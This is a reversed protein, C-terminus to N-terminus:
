SNRPSTGSDVITRTIREIKQHLDVSGGLDLKDGYTKPLMKALMWKRTDVRLRNRAVAAPSLDLKVDEGQFKAEVEKEDSIELIEDALMQYARARTHAYQQAFDANKETWRLVSWATTGAEEAAKRLSRGESLGQLVKDAAEQTYM